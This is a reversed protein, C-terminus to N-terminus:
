ASSGVRVRYRLVSEGGAAVPVDFGLTRADVRRPPLSSELVQWEGVVRERVEVTVAGAKQNRLTM